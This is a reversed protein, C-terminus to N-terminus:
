WTLLFSDDGVPVSTLANIRDKAAQGAADIPDIATFQAAYSDLEAKEATTAKTGKNLLQLGRRMAKKVTYDSLLANVRRELEYQVDAIRMAKYEDLTM